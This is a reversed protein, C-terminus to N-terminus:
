ACSCLQSVAKRALDGFWWHSCPQPDRHPWWTVWLCSHFHPPSICGRCLPVARYVAVAPLQQLAPTQIVTTIQLYKKNSYDDAWLLSRLSSWPPPPPSPLHSLLVASLLLIYCYVLQSSLFLAPPSVNVLETIVLHCIFKPPPTNPSSPPHWAPTCNAALSVSPLPPPRVHLGASQFCGIQIGAILVWGEHSSSVLLRRVPKDTFLIHTKRKSFHFRCM